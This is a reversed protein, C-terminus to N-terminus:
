TCRLELRRVLSPNAAVEDHAAVLRARDPEDVSGEIQHGVTEEASYGLIRQIADSVYTVVRDRGTVLLSDNSNELLARFRRESNRLAEDAAVQRSVDRMSMLVGRVAPDARLDRGAIEVWVWTGDRRAARCVTRCEDPDAGDLLASFNALAQEHAEPHILSLPDDTVLEEPKWGGLREVAGSVWKIALDDGVVLLAGSSADLVVRYYEDSRNPESNTMPPPPSAFTQRLHAEGHLTRLSARTEVRHPM